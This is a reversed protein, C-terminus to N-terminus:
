TSIEMEELCQGIIAVAKDIDTQNIILPPVLRLVTEGAGIILLGKERAKEVLPAVPVALEVGIMLGQGRVDVIAPHELHTLQHKLYEGNNQVQELFAPDHVKDFVVQAVHCVLPGGGFTTGHDGPGLVSAIEDTVLTVGIPLGGALPKAITMIDPTVDGWQHAWLQGTRGMGCQVEDFILVAGYQDCLARLGALFEPTAPRIGGEGQVPEIIVACTNENIANTASDLNNFEAFTVDALLPAFPDRYKSKYTASLSGMSRGHFGYNFSVIGTKHNGHKTKAWKRSFKLAAENAETGSNGFFVKDAFCSEVLSKALKIQAPNHYLNSIHTLQGAQSTVAQVWDPHSHGLANVAIGANFDLYKQGETDYLYVGEGKELVINPRIYTQIIYDSEAQILTQTNM